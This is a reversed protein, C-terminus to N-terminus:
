HARESVKERVVSARPLSTRVGEEGKRECCGREKESAQHCHRTTFRALPACEAKCLGGLKARRTHTQLRSAEFDSMHSARTASDCGQVIVSRSIILKGAACVCTGNSEGHLVGVGCPCAPHTHTGKGRTITERTSNSADM